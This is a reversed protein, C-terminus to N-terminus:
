SFRSPQSFTLEGNPGFKLRSYESAHHQSALCALKLPPIITLLPRSTHSHPCVQAVVPNDHPTISHRDSRSSSGTALPESAVRSIRRPIPCHPAPPREHIAAAMSSCPHFPPADPIERSSACRLRSPLLENSLQNFRSQHPIWDIHWPIRWVILLAYESSRAPKNPTQFSLLGTWATGVLTRTAKDRTGTTRTARSAERM